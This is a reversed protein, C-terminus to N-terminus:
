TNQTQDHEEFAIGLQQLLIALEAPSGERLVDALLEAAYAPDVRFQESM